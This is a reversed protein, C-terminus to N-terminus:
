QEECLQHVVNQFQAGRDKYDKFMDFSSCGPSLLITDGHHAIRHAACTAEQLTAVTTVLLTSALDEQILPAAEGIAFVHRVKHAFVEKWATYREGKHVGGAILVVPGDITQIARIVADINTGKSDDVFHIGNLSRVHQLTHPAKTFSSYADCCRKPDAGVSRALAYAALFNELDHSKKSLKKPLPHEAIGNFYIRQMDTHVTCDPEYGFFRTHIPCSFSHPITEHVFFPAGELLCQSLRMKAAAYERITGHRDLHDPTINILAGASFIPTKMTELQFSSLEVVLIESAYTDVCEILPIGINGVSKANIDASRLMHEVLRTVTTKGNTGTIALMQLRKSALYRCALETDGFIEIGHSQAVRVLPHKLSVGPSVILFAIEQTSCNILQVVEHPSLLSADIKGPAITPADYNDDTAWVIYGQLTLFRATAIGSTGLGLVIGYKKQEM